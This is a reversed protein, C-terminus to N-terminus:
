SHEIVEWKKDKKFTIVTKKDDEDSLFEIRDYECPLVVEGGWSIVGHKKDKVVEFLVKELNEIECYDEMYIADDHIMINDYEFPVILKGKINIVGWKGNKKVNLLYHEKEYDENWHVMMEDYACSLIIEGEMDFVGWKGEYKAELFRIEGDNKLVIRDYKCLMICKGNLNFIGCKGDKEVKLLLEEEQEEELDEFIIIQNNYISEEYDYYENLWSLRDYECPIIIKGKTIDMMGYKGYKKFISKGEVPESALDCELSLVIKGSTDIFKRYQLEDDVVVAYGNRFDSAFSYITPIVEKETADEFGYRLKVDNTKLILEKQNTKNTM